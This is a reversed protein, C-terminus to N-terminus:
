KEGTKKSVKSRCERTKKEGCSCEKELSTGPIPLLNKKENGGQPLNVGKEKRAECGGRRGKGQMRGEGDM